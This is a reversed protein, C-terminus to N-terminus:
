VAVYFLGAAECADVITALEAAGTGEEWPEAYIRSQSQIPLQMGVELRGPAVLPTVAPPGAVPDHDLWRGLPAPPPPIPALPPEHTDAVAGKYPPAPGGRMRLAVSPDGIAAGGRRRAGGPLQHRAEHLRPQPPVRRDPPLLGVARRDRRQEAV